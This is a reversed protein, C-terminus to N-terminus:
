IYKFINSHIIYVHYIEIHRYYIEFCKYFTKIYKVLNWHTQIYKDVNYNSNWWWMRMTVNKGHVGMMVNKEVRYLSEKELM